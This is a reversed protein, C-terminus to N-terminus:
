DSLEGHYAEGDIDNYEDLPFWYICETHEPLEICECGQAERLVSVNGVRICNDYKWRKLWYDKIADM